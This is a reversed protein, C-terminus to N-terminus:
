PAEPVTDFLTVTTFVAGLIVATEMEGSGPYLLSERVQEVVTESASLWVRVVVYMQFLLVNPVTNPEVEDRENFLVTAEGPSTMLQATSVVSEEPSLSLELAVNVNPFRAGVVGVTLRVGSGAYTSLLKVQAALPLESRSPCDM